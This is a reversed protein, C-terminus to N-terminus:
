QSDEHLFTRHTEASTQSEKRLYQQLFEKDKRLNSVDSFKSSCHEKSRNRTHTRYPLKPREIPKATTQMPHQLQRSLCQNRYEENEERDEWGSLFYEEEDKIKKM